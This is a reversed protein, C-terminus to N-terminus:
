WEIEDKGLKKLIKNANLFHNCGKFGKTNSKPSPHSTELIYNIKDSILTKEITEISNVKVDFTNCINGKFRQADKGWLMWICPHNKSIYEIVKETFGKWFYLHPHSDAKEKKKIEVTLATNLLFVGSDRWHKLTQWKKKDEEKFKIKFEKEIEERIVSLSEQNGLKYEPPVAFAYGTAKGKTPYPDQGLIVVNIKKINMEFVKFIDEKGKPQYLTKPKEKLIEDLIEKLIEDWTKGEFKEELMNDWSKHPIIKDSM